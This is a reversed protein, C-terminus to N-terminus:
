ERIKRSFDPKDIATVMPNVLAEERVNPFSSSSDIYAMEYAIEDSNGPLLIRIDLWSWLSRFRDSQALLGTMCNDILTNYFTPRTNLAQAERLFNLLLPKTYLEPLELKYLYVPEGRIHTRLGIVDQETALVIKKTYGRFLGKIPDYGDVDAKRLRAEISVVLFQDDKFEFSLLVHALGHDGFHSIAYWANRLESLKYTQDIYHAKAILDDENYRFDRVNLISITDGSLEITPLIQFQTQWDEDNTPTKLALFGIWAIGATIFVLLIKRPYSISSKM